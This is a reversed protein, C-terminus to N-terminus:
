ELDYSLLTAINDGGVGKTPNSFFFRTSVYYVTTLVKNEFNDTKNTFKICSVLKGPLM